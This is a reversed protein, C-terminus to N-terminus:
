RGHIRPQSSGSFVTQDIDGRQGSVSFYNVYELRASGVALWRTVPSPWQQVAVRAALCGSQYLRSQFKGNSGAALGSQGARRRYRAPRDPRGIDVTASAVPHGRGGVGSRRRRCNHRYANRAQWALAIADAVGVLLVSPFDAGHAGTISSVSQAAHRLARPVRDLFQAASGYGLERAITGVELSTESLMRRAEKMREERLFDFVTVGACHKFATNLRRANTGVALALETLSLTEDLQALLLRRTAHFLVLMSRRPLLMARPM